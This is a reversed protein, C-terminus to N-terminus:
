ELIVVQRKGLKLKGVQKYGEHAIKQEKGSAVAVLAGDALVGRLNELLLWTADSPAAGAPLIWQSRLGYPIDTIVLDPPQSYLRENMGGPRLADAQFVRTPIARTQMHRLLQAKLVAASRGAEAHSDKKYLRRMEEIESTRQELGALTLLSLNRRAVSLAETDVDSATIDLIHEGHLYALVALHYAGGCCPDYLRVPMHVGKASRLHLCRQFIESALRVPFATHGPLNYFVKGGAYDSYDQRETAFKFTM